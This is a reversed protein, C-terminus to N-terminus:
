DHVPRFGPRHLKPVVRTSSGGFSHFLPKQRGGTAEKSSGRITIGGHAFCVTFLKKKRLVRTESSHGWARYSVCVAESDKSNGLVIVLPECSPSDQDHSLITKLSGRFSPAANGCRRSMPMKRPTSRGFSTHPREFPTLRMLVVLNNKLSVLPERESEPMADGDSAVRLKLDDNEQHSRCTKCAAM